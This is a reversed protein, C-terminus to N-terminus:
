RRQEPVRKARALARRPPSDPKSAVRQEIRAVAGRDEPDLARDWVAETLWRLWAGVAPGRPVGLEILRSARIPPRITARRQQYDLVAGQSVGSWLSAAADLAAADMTELLRAVAAPRRLRGLQRRLARLRAGDNLAAQEGRQLAIRVRLENLVARSPETLGVSAWFHEPSQVVRVVRPAVSWDPWRGQPLRMRQAQGLAGARDRESLLLRWADGFRGPTLVALYHRQQRVESATERSLRGELRAAYRAARILRTPDDVFSRSHLTRITQSRADEAAGHPDLLLGADAGSLVYAAANVTFDRRRLDALIPAPEVLPLAGPASYREARTRALDIRGGLEDALRVSATGFRDHVTPPVAGFRALVVHLSSPDGDVALDIDTGGESLEVPPDLLLYDRVVGGVLYLPLEEETAAHCLARLAEAVREPLAAVLREPLAINSESATGTQAM